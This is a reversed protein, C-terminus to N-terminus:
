VEVPLGNVKLDPSLPDRLLEPQPVVSEEEKKIWTFKVSLWYRVLFAGAIGVLNSLAYNILFYETGLFLIALNVALGILMLGNFKLLRTVIHGHRRDRFTWFDNLFFNSAISIEIAAASAYLYYVGQAALVLLIGENVLVGSLGVVNFKIFSLWYGLTFVRRLAL